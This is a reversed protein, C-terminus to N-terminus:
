NPLVNIRCLRVKFFTVTFKRKMPNGLSVLAHDFYKVPLPTGGHGVASNRCWEHQAGIAAAGYLQAVSAGSISSDVAMASLLSM